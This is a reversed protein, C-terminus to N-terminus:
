NNEVYGPPTASGGEFLFKETETLLFQRAQPDTMELRYENILMVQQQKWMNWAQKSINEYIKRGLATPFPPRELGELDQNLKKCHVIRSM